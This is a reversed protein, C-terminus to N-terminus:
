DSNSRVNSSHLQKKMYLNSSNMHKVLDFYNYQFMVTLIGTLKVFNLDHKSRTTQSNEM